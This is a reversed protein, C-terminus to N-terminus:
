FGEEIFYCFLNVNDSLRTGKQFHLKFTTINSLSHVKNFLLLDKVYIIKITFVRTKRLNFIDLKYITMYNISASM